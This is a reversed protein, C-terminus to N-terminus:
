GNLGHYKEIHGLSVTATLGAPSNTDTLWNCIEPDPMYSAATAPGLARSPSDASRVGGQPHRGLNKFRFGLIEYYTGMNRYFYYDYAQLPVGHM